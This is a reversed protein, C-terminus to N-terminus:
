IKVIKKFVQGVMGQNATNKQKAKDGKIDHILTLMGM